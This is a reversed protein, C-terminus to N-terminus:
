SKRPAAFFAADVMEAVRKALRERWGRGKFEEPVENPGCKTVFQEYVRCVQVETFLKGGRGDFLWVVLSVGVGKVCFGAEEVDRQWPRTLPALLAALEQVTLSSM